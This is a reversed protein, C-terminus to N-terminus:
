RRLTPADGSRRTGKLRRGLLTAVLNVALATTAGSDDKSPDLGMVDASILAGTEAIMEMALHAERFTIGGPEPEVVGAAERSDVFDMDISVHVGRVAHCTVEICQRMIEVMGFRDIDEMTFVTIPSGDLRDKEEDTLNRVGVIVINDLSLPLPTGAWDSMISTLLDGHADFCIVGFEDTARAIGVLESRLLDHSGGLTLALDGAAVARAVAGAIATEAEACRAPGKVDIDGADCVEYALERLASALNHNRLAESATHTASATADGYPVGIIHVTRTRTQETPTLEITKHLYPSTMASVLGGYSLRFALKGGVQIEAREPPVEVILHDSSSGLVTISPDAPELWDPSVDQRGIGLIARRIEGRDEFAPAYGFADVTTQGGPMSPKVKLDVIEAHLLFADTCLQSTLSEPLGMWQRAGLLIAEGVRLHNIGRPMEGAALIRLNASSGGSVVPLPISLQRRIDEAIRVLIEMHGVTPQVGGFCALNTGIGHLEVGELAAISRAFEVADRPLVGERLDGLDVMMIVRHRKGRSLAARSLAGVVSLESNLSVDALEVAEEVESLMPIRLLLVEARIGDARLRRINQLRSEGIQRAGGRLMARAAKPLGCVAKTVGALDIGYRGCLEAVVRSNEEIRNLDIQLRPYQTTQM